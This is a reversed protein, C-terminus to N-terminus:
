QKHDNVDQPQCSQADMEQDKEQFDNLVVGLLTTGNLTEMAKQLLRKSTKQGRVVLLLGDALRTWVTTDALPVLPPSDIIIWDFSTALDKILDDLRPSELLQMTDQASTGAPLLHLQSPELRYVVQGVPEAETLYDSLGKLETLGFIRSLAPRRLDGEILLVRQNRGLAAALNAAILSKGEGIGSSTLVLKKLKQEEQMHRLRTSLLRFKEAGISNNGLMAVVRNEVTLTPQLSVFQAAAGENPEVSDAILELPRFSEEGGALPIGKRELEFQQLARFVSSM